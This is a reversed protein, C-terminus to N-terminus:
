DDRGRREEVVDKTFTMAHQSVVAQQDEAVVM